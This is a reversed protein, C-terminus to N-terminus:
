GTLAAIVALPLDFAGGEQLDVGRAGAAAGRRFDDVMLNWVTSAVLEEPRAGVPLGEADGTVCPPLLPLLPNALRAGWTAM